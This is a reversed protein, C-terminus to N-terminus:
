SLNSFSLFHYLKIKITKDIILLYINVISLLSYLEKFEDTM